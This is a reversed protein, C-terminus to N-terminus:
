NMLKKYAVLFHRAVNTAIRSSGAHEVLIVLALPPHHKYTFYAVFWGHEMYEKGLTRKKLDSTQATSTKAYIEIDKGKNIGRGTGGDVTARMASQLFTRTSEKIALPKTDISESELIRPRVLYGTFIAAIMRAVQMPTVLLFSQGIAASLTEGQWWPEGRNARKWSRSPIIGSKEPLMISTQEGLGFRHAYDHLIDIDIQSAIKFFFPNCSQAVAQCTSLTGHGWKQSCWYKRDAFLYYGRCNFTDDEHILNHELAASTTVLKFISGPPYLAGLARNIFPQQGQLEHWTTKSIPSLFLTPDFSPQSLLAKISGDLPNMVIFTGNYEKPFVDECIKQINLDLTTIIDNGAHAKEIESQSLTNGLSNVTNLVSGEHCKLTDHLLMELGMKGFFRCDIERKLYGLIHSGSTSHPYYRECDTELAINEHDPFLEEINSLQDRSIDHALLLKKKQKERQLLTSILDTNTLLPIALITELSQLLTEQDPTLTRKGSGIWMLNIVPRNTALLTGNCDLINGRTAHTTQLRMFNKQSRSIFYSALNIQLYFLRSILCLFMLALLRVLFLIKRNNITQM